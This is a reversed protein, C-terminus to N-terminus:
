RAANDSEAFGRRWRLAVDIQDRWVLRRSTMRLPHWSGLLWAPTRRQEYQADEVTEGSERSQLGSTVPEIGTREM